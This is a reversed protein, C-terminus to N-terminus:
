EELREDIRICAREISEAIDLHTGLESDFLSNYFIKFFYRQDNGVKKSKNRILDFYKLLKYLADDNTIEIDDLTEEIEKFSLGRQKKLFRLSAGLGTMSQSKGFIQSISKGFPNSSFDYETSRIQDHEYKFNCVENIKNLILNFLELFNKFGEKENDTRELSDLTEINQLIDGRDIPVERGNIFSNYGEIIEKFRYENLPDKIKKEDKDLFLKIGNDFDTSLYDFYLIELLHRTSMTTQGTNLTLMRYLIGLKEVGVYVECRVKQKIWSGDPDEHFLELLVYTRQLGDLIIVKKENLLKEIEEEDKFKSFDFGEPLNNESVGLVIPPITCKQKLDAKLSKKLRSSIVRKRQFENEDIIDKAIEIYKSIKMEVLVNLANIRYDPIFSHVKM